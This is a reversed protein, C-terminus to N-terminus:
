RSMRANLYWHQCASSNYDGTVLKSTIIVYKDSVRNSIAHPLFTYLCTHTVHPITHRYETGSPIRESSHLIRNTVQRLVYCHVQLHSSVLACVYLCLFLSHGAMCSKNVPSCLCTRDLTQSISNIHLKLTYKLLEYIDAPTTFISILDYDLTMAAASKTHHMTTWLYRVDYTIKGCSKLRPLNFLSIFNYGFEDFETIEM